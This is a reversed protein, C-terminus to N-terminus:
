YGTASALSEVTKDDTFSGVQIMYGKNVWILSYRLQQKGNVIIADTFKTAGHGNLSTEEFPNFDSRFQKRLDTKYQTLLSEPNDHKIAVIYIDEGGYRYVGEFGNFTSNAIELTTEHIGMFSFGPPLNTRPIFDPGITQNPKDFICGSLFVSAIILISLLVYKKPMKKDGGPKIHQM